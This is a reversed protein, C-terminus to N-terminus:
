APLIVLREPSEGVMFAPRPCGVPEGAVFMVFCRLNKRYVSINVWNPGGALATKAAQDCTLLHESQVLTEHWQHSAHHYEFFQTEPTIPALQMQKLSNNIETLFELM